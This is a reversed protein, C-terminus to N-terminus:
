TAKEQSASWLWWAEYHERQKIENRISRAQKTPLLPDLEVPLKAEQKRLQAFRKEFEDPFALKSQIDQVLQEFDCKLVEYHVIQDAIHKLKDTWRYANKAAALVITLIAAAGSVWALRPDKLVGVGSGGGAAGCVAIAFDIRNAIRLIQQYRRRYCETGWLLDLYMRYVQNVRVAKAEDASCVAALAGHSM